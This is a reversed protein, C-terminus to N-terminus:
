ALPIEAKGSTLRALSEGLLAASEHLSAVEEASFDVPDAREVRERAQDLFRRLFVGATLRERVPKLGEQKKRLEERYKGYATVM